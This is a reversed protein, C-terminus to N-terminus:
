KMLNLNTLNQQTMTIMIAKLQSFNKKKQRFPLHTKFPSDVKSMNRLSLQVLYLYNYALFIFNTVIFLCSEQNLNDNITNTILKEMATKLELEM